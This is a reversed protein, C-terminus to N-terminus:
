EEEMYDTDEAQVHVHTLIEVHVPNVYVIPNVNEYQTASFHFNGKVLKKWRPQIM